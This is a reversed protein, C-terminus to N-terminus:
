ANKTMTARVKAKLGGRPVVKEGSHLQYLGTRKVKGGKKFSGLIPRRMGSVPRPLQPGGPTFGGTGPPAVPTRMPPGVPGPGGFRTGGFLQM